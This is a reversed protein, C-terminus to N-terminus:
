LLRTVEYLNRIVPVRSHEVEIGDPNFWVCDLGANIAGRIDTDLNDGIMICQASASKAKKM